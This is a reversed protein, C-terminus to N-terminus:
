ALAKVRQRARSFLGCCLTETRKPWIVIERFKMLSSECFFLCYAKRLLVNM